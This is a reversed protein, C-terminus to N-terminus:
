PWSSSWLLVGGQAAMASGAAIPDLVALVCVCALSGLLMVVLIAGSVASAGLWGRRLDIASAIGYVVALTPMAILAVAILARDGPDVEGGVASRGGACLVSAIGVGIMLDVVLPRRAGRKLQILRM